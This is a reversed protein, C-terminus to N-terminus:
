QHGDAVVVPRGRALAERQPGEPVGLMELRDRLLPRRPEEEFLYGLSETGRHAVPFAAIGWGPRALVTGATVSRLRYGVEHETGITDALHRRAFAVTEGSGIVELGGLHYLELTALLGALGAIHDLHLHTLLVHRLGRFGLRARMMQRQTGEGCDVLFRSPGRSVVVAPLGREASTRGRCHWSLLTRVNTQRFYAMM